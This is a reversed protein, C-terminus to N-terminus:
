GIAYNEPPLDSPYGWCIIDCHNLSSDKLVLNPFEGWTERYDGLIGHVFVLATRNGDREIREYYKEM